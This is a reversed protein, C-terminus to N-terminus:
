YRSAQLQDGSSQDGVPYSLAGGGSPSTPTPLVGLFLVSCLLVGGFWSSADMASPLRVEGLTVESWWMVDLLFQMKDIVM